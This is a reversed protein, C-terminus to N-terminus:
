RMVKEAFRLKASRARPNRRIEQLSAQLPKKNLLKLMPKQVYEKYKNQAPVTAGEKFIAKAIRDELRHFSMVGIRGGFSLVELAKPLAKQIAELERNVCIRLAQFILTAPHLKKKFGRGLQEAILDALEKTTEISQSKRSEVITKAARRWRPEEGFERFIEGLKEESWENVIERATLHEGPDMRMDLPGEKRFSFGKERKDLQM